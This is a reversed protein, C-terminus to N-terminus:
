QKPKRLVVAVVAIVIAIVLIIGIIKMRKGGKIAQHLRSDNDVM